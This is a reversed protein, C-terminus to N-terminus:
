RQTLESITEENKIAALTVKAKLEPPYQKRKKSKTM